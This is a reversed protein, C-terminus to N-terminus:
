RGQRASSAADLARAAKAAAPTGRFRETTEQYMAAAENHRGAAALAGAAQFCASGALTADHDFVLPLWLLAAAARQNERRVLYGQGVVYWPGGRLRDPMDEIRSEWREIEERPVQRARLNKRWLQARALSRVRLDTSSALRNLEHEASPAGQVVAAADVNEGLLHSAGILRAVEDSQSLWARAQAALTEDTQVFEWALPILEFHRTEPDSQVLLLFRSGAAGYDGKQLACRVFLALIERRMWPRKEEALAQQLAAAAPEIRGAKFETLARRHPETQPSEVAIVESAPYTQLRGTGIIIELSRGTYERVTGRVTVRGGGREPQLTVSDPTAEPGAGAVLLCFLPALRHLASPNVRTSQTAPGPRVASSASNAPFPPTAPAFAKRAGSVNAAVPVNVRGVEAVLLVTM